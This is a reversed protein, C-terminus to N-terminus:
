FGQGAQKGAQGVCKIRGEGHGNGAVAFRCFPETLDDALRRAEIDLDDLLLVPQLRVRDM